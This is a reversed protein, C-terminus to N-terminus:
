FLRPHTIEVGLLAASILEPQWGHDLIVTRLDLSRQVRVQRPLEGLRLTQRDRYRGRQARDLMNERHTGPAVHSSELYASAHVCIPIDCSHLLLMSPPLPEGTALEHAYRQPRVAQQGGNRQIWFRGYGDDSIAGTWFWCDNSEPGKVVHSWFREQEPRIM